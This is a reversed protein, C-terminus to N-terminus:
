ASYESDATVWPGDEAFVSDFMQHKRLVISGFIEGQRLLVAQMRVLELVALFTAVLASVSPQREFIETLSVPRDESM